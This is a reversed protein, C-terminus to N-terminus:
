SAQSYSVNVYDLNVNGVGDKVINWGATSTGTLTIVNTGNTDRLLNTVHTTTGDTFKVTKAAQSANITVNNFTNSGTITTIYNGSGQITLNNYTLGGGAFIQSSTTSQTYSITSTGANFTLNTTDSAVWISTPSTATPVFTGAGLNVTRVGTGSISFLWHTYTYAGFNVTGRFVTLKATSCTYDSNYTYTGGPAYFATEGRM